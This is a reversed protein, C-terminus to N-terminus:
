FGYIFFQRFLSLCGNQASFRLENLFYSFFLGSCVWFSASDSLLCLSIDMWWRHLRRFRRNLTITWYLRCGQTAIIFSHLNHVRAPGAGSPAKRATRLLIGVSALEKRIEDARAWDKAAPKGNLSSCLLSPFYSRNIQSAVAEHLKLFSSWLRVIRWTDRNKGPIPKRSWRGYGSNRLYTSTM